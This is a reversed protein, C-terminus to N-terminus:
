QKILEIRLNDNKAVTKIFERYAKYDEKPYIGEHLSYERTYKLTTNNVKEFTTKYYGYKTNLEKNNPIGNIVYGQPIEILYEDTDIFNQKVKLPTNRNRYRNPINTIRNFLNVKFLYNTDSVSAFNDIALELEETFAVLEKNNTLNITLLELNNIYDWDYSKYFKELEKQTYEKIPFKYDYQNGYSKRVLSAKINGNEKLTITAKTQQLSSKKYSPTRKIVGGEPTIVLVDRDDTFSGLFGFPMTQSTCELWLDNGNNPINLIMHNGQMSTFNSAINKKSGAYVIVHHSQIGVADLLAKTYNTLGKCDGYGVADVKNAAIPEWGGIDVQVSIYRTKSQVFEYIKKAKEETTKLNKVLENVKAVTSPTLENRNVLLNDYMWKGFEQWNKAQGKVGKLAFSNLAIVLKPTLEDFPLTTKEPKIAPQNLLEYVTSNGEATKKIPYTDFNEEKERHEINATNIFTYINKEISVNYTEMPIWHPIFATSSNEYESEFVVTYPYSAPTYDLYRVRSDSYLTGGDIASVDHFDNKSYKKIKKGLADYIVASLKGINTDDNYHQYAKIHKNGSENFVTVIRKEKVSLDDINKIEVMVNSYRIVANAHETLEKSITLSSLDEPEQSFCFLSFSFIFLFSIFKLNKM